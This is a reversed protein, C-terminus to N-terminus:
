FVNLTNIAENGTIILNSRLTQNSKQQRNSSIAKVPIVFQSCSFWFMNASRVVSLLNVSVYARFPKSEFTVGFLFLLLNIRKKKLYFYVCLYCQFVFGLGLSKRMLFLIMQGYDQVSRISFYNISWEKSYM